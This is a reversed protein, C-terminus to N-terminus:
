FIYTYSFAPLIPLVTLKFLTIDGETTGYKGWIFDEGYLIFQPNMANYANYLSFNWATENGRRTTHRLNVGLNLRHTPPLRYNNRSAVFDGTVVYDNNPILLATKRQPITMTSGSMFVWSASVDVKESFKHNVTLNVSHRRDYRYPFPRGMNITGDPFLRDSKALTYSIWGTTKGATKQVFLEVGRARGHGTEVQKEWGESNGLFIVGEKYELLNNMEKWYAELSFEWGPLGSYYVGATYQDSTVPRIDRTIPVWLDLPLMVNTSSLLHVYQAMRSYGAKFSLGGDLAAKASIRPQASLYNQGQTNFWSLRLGPNLSLHPGLTINDEFYLSTDNGRYSRGSQALPEEKEDNWREMLSVTEPRFDHRLYELGFKVLHAPDPTWDFDTRAGLDIIGSRYSLSTSSSNTTGNREDEYQESFDGTMRYRNYSLTTNAFLRSGFIHNWRLAAVSSGWSIGLKQDRNYHTYETDDLEGDDDYDSWYGNNEKTSYGGNDAGRYLSLFFRDRPTANWTLKGNLDYFYYNYYANNLFIRMVPEAIVSHLGRASVSYSLRERLIPGELHFRDNLLGVTLSGHTEKMNGDNTRIDIISSIRGGYRAPFSGKYLTVNKVAEPQFISFLGLTHDMNYVPVGDLLVLNEEPGGGRVHLGDFGEQGGQVGPLLQLAKIVDAEGFLMPTSKIQTLPVEVSGLYASQLGADKRAVIRAADLSANGRLTFNLTTDRQVDLELTQQDYGIYAIQLRHTGAPLTLTYFGFENTVAGTQGSLIGAGILTEGSAADTIHGSLTVRRPRAAKPQPPAPRLVVNRGRVEWNVTSGHFSQRLAEELELSGGLPELDRSQSLAGQLTADYVFRIDYRDRLQAMRQLLTTQSFAPLISFLLLILIGFPKRTKM